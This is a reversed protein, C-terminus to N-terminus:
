HCRSAVAVVKVAVMTVAVVEGLVDAVANSQDTLRDAGVARQALHRQHGGQDVALRDTVAIVAPAEQRLRGDKGLDHGFAARQVARLFLSRAWEVRRFPLPGQLARVAMMPHIRVRVQTAAVRHYVRALATTQDPQIRSLQGDDLTVQWVDALDLR